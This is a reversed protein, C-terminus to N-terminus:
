YARTRNALKLVANRIHEREATPLSLWIEAFERAEDTIPSAESEGFMLWAPNVELVTAINNIKRPRLSKGNEIKQIVAQNTESLVALQDQTFGMQRRRFRMREGLTRLHQSFIRQTSMAGLGM